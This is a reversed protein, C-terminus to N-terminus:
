QIYTLESLFWKEKQGNPLPRSINLPMIKNKLEEEAINKPSMNEINKILPKAGLTLQQTRIGLLRTREYSFLFPKTIREDPKVINISNTDNEDDDFFLENENDSNNNYICNDDEKDDDNDDENDTVIEKDEDDIENENDSLNDEEDDNDDITEIQEENINEENNNIIPIKEM